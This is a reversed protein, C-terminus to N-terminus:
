PPCEYLFGPYRTTAGGRGKRAVGYMQEGRLAATLDFYQLLEGVWAGSNYGDMGETFLHEVDFGAASVAAHLEGPTYERVHPSETAAWPYLSYIQPNGSATLVKAVSTHSAVNPTTLILTGDDSLVRGCELLMHMPDRTLHEFVECALVLDYHGDPYPFADKEADFLDYEGQFIEKGRASVPRSVVQGATGLYACRVERYGGVCALASAMYGYAALELARGTRGPPPAAALTRATRHLHIALYTRSAENRHDLSQLFEMYENYRHNSAPSEEMAAPEAHRKVEARLSKEERL